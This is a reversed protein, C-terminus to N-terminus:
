ECEVSAFSTEFANTLKEVSQAVAAEPDSAEVDDAIDLGTEVFQLRFDSVATKLEPYEANELQEIESALQEFDKRVDDFKELVGAVGAASSFDYNKLEELSAATADRAECIAAPAKIAAETPAEGGDGGDSSDSGGCAALALAVACAALLAVLRVLRAPSSVGDIM